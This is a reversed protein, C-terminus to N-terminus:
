PPHQLASRRHLALAMRRDHQGGVERQAEVRGVLLDRTAEQLVRLFEFPGEGLGPELQGVTVEARARAVEAGVHGLFIQDPLVRDRREVVLMSALSVSASLPLTRAEPRLVPSSTRVAQAEAAENRPESM